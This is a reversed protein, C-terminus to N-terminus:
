AGAPALGLVEDGAQVDVVGAVDLGPTIPFQPPFQGALDGHRVKIDLPNVSAARVRVRVEGASPEPPERETLELVDPGGFRTYIIAKM